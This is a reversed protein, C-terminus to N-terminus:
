DALCSTVVPELLMLFTPLAWPATEPQVISLGGTGAAVSASSYCAPSRGTLADWISGVVSFLGGSGQGPDYPLVEGCPGVIFATPSARVPRPTPTPTPTATARPTPPPTVGLKEGMLRPAPRFPTPTPARCSGEYQLGWPDVLNCPNNLVYAYPNQSQPMEALGPWPDGSVFRGIAPDYYRARLYYLDTEADWQEGTFRFHTDATGDYYRLSGFM